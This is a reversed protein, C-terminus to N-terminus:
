GCYLSRYGATEDVTDGLSLEPISDIFGYM